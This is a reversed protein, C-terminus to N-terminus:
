TSGGCHLRQVGVPGKSLVVTQNGDFAVSLLLISLFAGGPRGDYLIADIGASPIPGSTTEAPIWTRM